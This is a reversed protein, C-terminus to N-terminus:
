FYDNEEVDMDNTNLYNMKGLKKFVFLIQNFRTFLKQHSTM